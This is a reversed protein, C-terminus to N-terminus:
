REILTFKHKMAIPRRVFRGDITRGSDPSDIICAEMKSIYCEYSQSGIKVTGYADDPGFSAQVQRGVEGYETGCYECKCGHLPAGCNICNTLM